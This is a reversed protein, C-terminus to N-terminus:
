TYSLSHFKLLKGRVLRSSKSIWLYPRKRAIPTTVRSVPCWKVDIVHVSFLTQRDTQTQKDTRRDTQRDTQTQREKGREIERRM